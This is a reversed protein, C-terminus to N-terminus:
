HATGRREDVEKLIEDRSLLQGGQREYQDALDNLQSGLSTTGQYFANIVGSIDKRLGESLPRVILDHITLVLCSLMHDMSRQVYNFKAAKLDEIAEVVGPERQHDNLVKLLEDFLRANNGITYDM